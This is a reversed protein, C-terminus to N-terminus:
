WLMCCCENQINISSSLDGGNLFALTLSINNLNSNFKGAM